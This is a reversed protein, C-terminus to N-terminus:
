PQPQPLKLPTHFMRALHSILLYSLPVPKLLSASPTLQQLLGAPRCQRNPWRVALVTCLTNHTCVKFQTQHGGVNRRSLLMAM